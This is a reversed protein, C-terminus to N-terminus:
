LARFVGIQSMRAEVRQNKRNKDRTPTNAAFTLGGMLALESTDHSVYDVGV